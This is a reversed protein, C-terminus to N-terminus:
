ALIKYEIIKINLTTAFISIEDDLIESMTAIKLDNHKLKEPIDVIRYTREGDNISWYGTEIEKYHITGVILKYDKAM